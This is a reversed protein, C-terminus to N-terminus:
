SRIGVFKFLLFVAESSDSIIYLAFNFRSVVTHTNSVLIPWPSLLSCLVTFICLPGAGGM